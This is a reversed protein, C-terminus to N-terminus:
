NKQPLSKNFSELRIQLEYKKGLHQHQKKMEVGNILTFATLRIEQKILNVREKAKLWVANM